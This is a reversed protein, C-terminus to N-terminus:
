RGENEVEAEHLVDILQQRSSVGVKRYVHSIHTKVTTRSIGLEREIYPENRGASLLELVQAERQTLGCTERLQVCRSQLPTATEAIGTQHQTAEDGPTQGNGAKNGGNWLCFGGFAVLVLLVAPVISFLADQYPFVGYLPGLFVCSFVSAMFGAGTMVILDQHMEHTDRRALLAVIASLLPISCATVLVFPISSSSMSPLSFFVLAFASIGGFACVAAIPPRGAHKGSSIDFLRASVWLLACCLGLAAICRMSALGLCADGGLASPAYNTTKPYMTPMFVALFGVLASLGRLTASSSSAKKSDARAKLAARKPLAFALWCTAALCPLMTVVLRMAAQGPAGLLPYCSSVILYLAFGSTLGSATTSLVSSMDLSRYAQLAACNFGLFGLGFLFGSALAGALPSACFASRLTEFLNLAGALTAALASGVIIAATGGSSTMCAQLPRLFVVGVFLVAIICVSILGSVTVSHTEGLFLASFRFLFAWASGFTLAAFPLPNRGPTRLLALFTGAVKARHRSQGSNVGSWM